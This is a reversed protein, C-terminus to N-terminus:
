GTSGFGGEGRDTSDLSDVVESQTMATVVVLQVFKDGKRFALNNEPRCDLRALIEGRYDSDIVGVCNDLGAGFKVKTSSREILLGAYGKPIAVKVGTRCLFKGRSFDEFGAFPLDFGASGSTEVRPPDSLPYHDMLKFKIM